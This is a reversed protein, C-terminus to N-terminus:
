TSSAHSEPLDLDVCKLDDEAFRKAFFKHADTRVKCVERQAFKSFEM